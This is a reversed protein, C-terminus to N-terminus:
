IITMSYDNFLWVWDLDRDSSAGLARKWSAGRGLSAEHRVELDGLDAHVRPPVCGAAPEGFNISSGKSLHIFVPPLTPLDDFWLACFHSCPSSQPITTRITKGVNGGTKSVKVHSETSRRMLKTEPPHYLGGASVIFEQLFCWGTQHCTKTTCGFWINCWAGMHKQAIRLQM